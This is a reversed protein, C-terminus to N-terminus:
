NRQIIKGELSKSWNNESFDLWALAFQISRLVSQISQISIWSVFELLITMISVKHKLHKQISQSTPQAPQRTLKNCVTCDHVVRRSRCHIVFILSEVLYINQMKHDLLASCIVNNQCKYVYVHKQCQRGHVSPQLGDEAFKADAM